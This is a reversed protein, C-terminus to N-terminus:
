RYNAQQFDLNEDMNFRYFSTKGYCTLSGHGDYRAFRAFGPPPMSTVEMGLDEMGLYLCRWCKHPSSHHQNWSSPHDVVFGPTNEWGEIEFTIPKSKQSNQHPLANLRFGFTPTNERMLEVRSVAENGKLLCKLNFDAM